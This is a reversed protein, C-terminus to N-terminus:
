ARETEVIVGTGVLEEVVSSLAAFVEDTIISDPSADSEKVLKSLKIVVVEEYIKAM